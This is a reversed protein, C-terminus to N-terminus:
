SASIAALDPPSFSCENWNGVVSVVSGSLGLRDPLLSRLRPAKGVGSQSSLFTISFSASCAFFSLIALMVLSSAINVIGMCFAFEWGELPGIGVLSSNWIHLLLPDSVEVPRSFCGEISSVYVASEVCVADTIPLDLLIWCVVVVCNGCVSRDGM